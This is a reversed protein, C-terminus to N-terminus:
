MEMAKSVIKGAGGMGGGVAKGVVKGIAKELGKGAKGIDGKGKGGFDKSHGQQAQKQQAEIRKEIGSHKYGHGLQSGKIEKGGPRSFSVGAIRGTSQQNLKAEIGNNRCAEVFKSKDGRCDRISKDIGKKLDNCYGAEIKKHDELPKFCQEKEIKRLSTEQKKYDWGDHVVSLDDTRVRNALIHIHEHETDHHRTILYQNKETDFGMNKLHSEGMKNLQEDTATEGPELSISCHWVPNKCDKNQSAVADFEKTIEDPTTGSMNGGIVRAGDKTIDYNVAGGFDNGKTINGISM